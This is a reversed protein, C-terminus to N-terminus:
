SRKNPETSDTIEDTTAAVARLLSIQASLPVGYIADCPLSAGIGEQMRLIPYSACKRTIDSSYCHWVVPVQEGIDAPGGSAGGLRNVSPDWSVLHQM